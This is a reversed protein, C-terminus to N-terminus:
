KLKFRIPVIRTARPGPKLKWRSVCATISRDNLLPDSASVISCAVVSGSEDVTISVRVTGEISQKQAMAPYPPKPMRGGSFRAAGVDGNGSGAANGSGSGSGSGAETRKAVPRNSGPNKNEARKAAPKPLAAEKKPVNFTDTSPKLEPKEEPLDPVEPLPETEAIEPIEPIEPVLEAVDPVAAEQQQLTEQNDETDLEQNAASGASQMDVDMLEGETIQIEEQEHVKLDALRPPHDPWSIGVVSASSFALWTSFTGISTAYLISNMIASPISAAAM